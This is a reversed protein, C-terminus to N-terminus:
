GVTKAGFILKKKIKLVVTLKLVEKLKHLKWVYQEEM